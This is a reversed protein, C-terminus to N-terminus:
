AGPAKEKVWRYTDRGWIGCGKATNCVNCWFGSSLFASVFAM